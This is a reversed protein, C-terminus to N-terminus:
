IFTSICPHARIHARKGEMVLKLLTRLQSPLTVSVPSKFLEPAALAWNLCNYLLFTIPLFRSCESALLRMCAKQAVVSASPWRKRREARWREIEEPTDLSPVKPHALWKDEKGPRNKRPPQTLGLPSFRETTVPRLGTHISPQTLPRYSLRDLSCSLNPFVCRM